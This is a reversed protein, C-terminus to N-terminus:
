ATVLPIAAPTEEALLDPDPPPPWKRFTCVCLCNEMVGLGVLRAVFRPKGVITVGGRDGCAPCPFPCPPLIEAVVYISDKAIKFDPESSVAQVTDGPGFDTM